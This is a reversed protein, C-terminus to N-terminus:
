GKAFREIWQSFAAMFEELFRSTGSNTLVGQEDFLSAMGGVYAEPTSMVNVGICVLSQRLHHNAGCGGMAGQSSTVVAAPKGLLASAGHPRSLVDVANKLVAPISRNYEPTVFLVADMASVDNRVTKWASPTDDELDQNYLSLAGIEVIHLSLRPPAIQALSNALMRNLSKQRLSGILVAVKYPESM